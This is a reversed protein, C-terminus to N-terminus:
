QGRQREGRGCRGAPDPLRQPLGGGPRRLRGCRAPPRQRPDRLHARPYLPHGGSDHLQREAGGGGRREGRAPASGAAPPADEGAGCIEPGRLHEGPGRRQADLPAPRDPDGRGSEGGLAAAGLLHAGSLPDAARGSEGQAGFAPQAHRGAAAAAGPLHRDARGPRRRRCRPLPRVAPHDPQEVPHQQLDGHHPGAPQLVAAGPAPGRRQGHNGFRGGAAFREGAPHPFRHQAPRQDGAPRLGGPGGAGPRHQAAPHRDAPPDGSRLPEHSSSSNSSGQGTAPPM